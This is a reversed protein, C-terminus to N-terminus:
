FVRRREQRCVLVANKV